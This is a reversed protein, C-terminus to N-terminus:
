HFFACNNAQHVFAVAKDLAFPGVLIEEEMGVFELPTCVEVAQFLAVLDGKFNGLSHFPRLGGVNANRLNSSKFQFGGLVM